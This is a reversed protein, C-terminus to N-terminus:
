LQAAAKVPHNRRSYQFKVLGSRAKPSPGVERCNPVKSGNPLRRRFTANVRGTLSEPTDTAGM